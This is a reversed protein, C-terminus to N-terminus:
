AALGPVAVPLRGVPVLDGALVGALAELSDPLISYTCLAPVGDPYRAVDWPTRMAVAITRPAAAAVAAVLDVQGPQRIADITGVVVADAGAAFARAGAIQADSPAMGVVIEEVSDFRTRLARVLGPAVTSSTDAPTLDAPQPMIALIRSHPPVQALPGRALTISREALERSLARHEASGVVDLDPQPGATGLWGRLGDIRELSADVAARDFRGAMTAELLARAIRDQADPAAACLLLDVGARVAAAIQAAQEDGQALARMDLADSITVGAFGLERRLLDDMIGASLTAPLRADGTLAPVAIHASMALRAGAAIGARFPALTVDELRARDADVAALGFHTDDRVEGLGPFHKFTAAVGGGQLGRIMAAGLRGVAAPDDGFCRIGMAVNAPESALDLSPAYVVNVGMARAELAIAHGVREALGEDDVAGLAMNGAFQTADDGLAQFQGCEQDAAVLLPTASVGLRGVTGRAGVTGLARASGGAGATGRARTTGRVGAAGSAGARQFAETLERVQGPSRVNHHRFLTMGAAPAAALRRAVWDPLVEGEFALMMRGLIRMGPPDLPGLQLGGSGVRVHGTVFGGKSGRETM